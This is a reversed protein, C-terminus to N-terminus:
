EYRLAEVPDLRSARIAPMLGSLVGVLILVGTSLMVTSLSVRMHIDARGSEDEFLPGLLPITGISAAIVYSLLIGIFGGLLTLALAEALFQARIHHKRAGLARRLGIERVREDVSVLMINMVGVGGIGLTLAGIFLLLVQIGITIADIVPRFEERGFATVARKDTPSFRQRKALTARVQDIAQKEFQPAVPTFVIVSAYRTNWMEGATSYPIWACEDDCTFYCSFNLKRDMVGIVTFRVNNIRVTEGVAPMGGFLKEKLRGGLFTVRRREQVDEASIWRGESPVQNRMEGYNPYVGRIATNQLREGYTISWWRVTEASVEEVLTAEQRILEIDEKEFRVRKGAREGGVQESTQGPWVIVADKGFNEFATVLLQRFSSGYAILMTVAVIGWIIGLMTLFSRTPSRKLADWSQRIIEFLM